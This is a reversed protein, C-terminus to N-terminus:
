AILVQQHQLRKLPNLDNRHSLRKLAHATLHVRLHEVSRFSIWKCLSHWNLFKLALTTPLM